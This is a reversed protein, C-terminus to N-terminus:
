SDIVFKILKNWFFREVQGVLMVNVAFNKWKV